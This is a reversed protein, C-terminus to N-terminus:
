NEQKTEVPDFGGKSLPHCRILRACIFSLGKIIGKKQLADIAYESCSPYFRCTNPLLPSLLIQYLKVFLSFVKVFIIEIKGM